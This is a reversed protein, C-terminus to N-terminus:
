KKKYKFYFILGISGLIVVGGILSAIIITKTRRKTEAEKRITEQRAIEVQAKAEELAAEAQTQATKQAGKNTAAVIGGATGVIGSIANAIADWMNRYLSHTSPLRRFDYTGSNGYLQILLKAYDERFTRDVRVRNQIYALVEEPTKTTSDEGYKAFLGDVSERNNLISDAMAEAIAKYKANEHMAAM